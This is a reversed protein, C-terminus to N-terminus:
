LNNVTGDTLHQGAVKIATQVQINDKEKAAVALVKHTLTKWYDRYMSRMDKGMIRNFETLIKIFSICM